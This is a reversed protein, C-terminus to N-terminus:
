TVIDDIHRIADNYIILCFFFFPIKMNVFSAAFSAFMVRHILIYSLYAYM